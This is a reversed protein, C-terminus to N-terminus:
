PLKYSVKSRNYGQFTGEAAPRLPFETYEGGGQIGTMKGTGGVFTYTGKGGRGIAGSSKITLFIQDGDPLTQVCFGNNDEYVGKIAQISGVCRVSANHHIGEGTDSIVVGLVEYTMLVREQGMAVTKFTGSYATIGTGTFEKPIQAQASSFAVLVILGLLLAFAMKKM